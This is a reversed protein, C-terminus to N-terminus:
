SSSARTRASSLRTVYHATTTRQLPGFYDGSEQFFARLERDDIWRGEPLTCWNAFTKQNKKEFFFM